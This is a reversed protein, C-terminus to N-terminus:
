RTHSEPTKKFKGNKRTKKTNKMKHTNINYKTILSPNNIPFPSEMQTLDIKRM